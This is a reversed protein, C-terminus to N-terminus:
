FVAFFIINNIASWLMLGDVFVYYFYFGQTKYSLHHILLMSILIVGLSVYLYPHDLGQQLWIFYFIGYLLISINCLIPLLKVPTDTALTHLQHRTDGIIDKKDFIICLTFMFFFRAAILYYSLELEASLMPLVSTTYTWTAALLVTKFFGIRKLIKQLSLFIMPLVYVMTLCVAILLLHIIEFLHLFLVTFALIGAIIILVFNYRNVRLFNSFSEETSYAYKSILWYLNYTAITSLFIFLILFYDPTANILLYTEVTLAAACLAAFISHSVLFTLIGKM